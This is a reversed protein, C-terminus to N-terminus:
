RSTADAELRGDAAEDLELAGRRRLETRRHDVLYLARGVQRRLRSLKQRELAMAPVKSLHGLADGLQGQAEQIASLAEGTCKVAKAKTELSDM